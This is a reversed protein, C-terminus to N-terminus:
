RPGHRKTIHIMGGDMEAPERFDRWTHRSKDDGRTHGSVRWQGSATSVIADFAEAVTLNPSPIELADLALRRRRAQELLEVLLEQYHACALGPKSQRSLLRRLATLENNTVLYSPLMFTACLRSEQISGKHWNGHMAESANLWKEFASRNPLPVNTQYAGRRFSRRYADLHEQDRESPENFAWQKVSLTWRGLSQQHYAAFAPLALGTPQLAKLLAPLLGKTPLPPTRLQAISFYPPSAIHAPGSLFSIAGELEETWRLHELFAEALQEEDPVYLGSQVGEILPCGSPCQLACLGPSRGQWLLPTGCHPCRHTLAEDHVPCREILDGQTAYSHFGTALCRPCGRLCEPPTSCLEPFPHWATLRIKYESDPLQQDVANLSGFDCVELAHPATAWRVWESPLKQRIEADGLQNARILRGIFAYWSEFPRHITEFGILEELSEGSDNLM